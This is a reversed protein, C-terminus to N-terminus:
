RRAADRPPERKLFIAALAALLIVAVGIWVWWLAGESRAPMPDAAQAAALAPVAALAAVITKPM